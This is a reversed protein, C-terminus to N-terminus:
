KRRKSIGGNRMKKISGGRRMTAVPDAFKIKGSLEDQINQAVEKEFLKRDSDDKITNKNISGSKLKKMLAINAAATGDTLGQKKAESWSTGTKQQWLQSVTPSSIKEPTTVKPTTLKKTEVKKVEEKKPTVKKPTVTKAKTPSKKKSDNPGIASKIPKKIAKYTKSKALNPDNKEVYDDAAKAVKGAAKGATKVVKKGVKAAERAMLASGTVPITRAVAKGALGVGTQIANSKIGAKATGKIKGYTKSKSLYPDNKQIYDDVQKLKSGVYKQAKAAGKEIYKGPDSAVAAAKTTANYISKLGKYVDKAVGKVAKYTKSKTGVPHKKEFNRVAKSVYSSNSKKKAM